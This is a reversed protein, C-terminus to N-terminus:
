SSAVTARQTAVVMMMLIRRALYAATVRTGRIQNTATVKVADHWLIKSESGRSSKQRLGIKQCITRCGFVSRPEDEVVTKIGCHSRDQHDHNRQYQDFGCTM